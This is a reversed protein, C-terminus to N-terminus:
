SYTHPFHRWLNSSKFLLITFFERSFHGDHPPVALCCNLLKPTPLEDDLEGQSLAEGSRPQGAPAPQEEPRHGYAPIYDCRLPNWHGILFLM